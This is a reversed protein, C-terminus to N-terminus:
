NTITDNSGSTIVAGCGAVDGTKVVRQGTSTFTATGTVPTVGHGRIPCTHLNGNVCAVRGNVRFNATATIMSGGHSSTDGLRVIKAM